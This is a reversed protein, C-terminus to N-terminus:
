SRDKKTCNTILSYFRHAAQSGGGCPCTPDEIIKFWHYYANLRGHGTLMTTLEKILTRTPGGATIHENAMLIGNGVEM